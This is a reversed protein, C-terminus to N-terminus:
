LNTDDINELIFKAREYLEDFTIIEPSTTNKRFLEFSSFKYENIGKVTQFENLNGIVLYSKPNYNYIVEGTPDGDKNTIEIKSKLDYLASQVTKQIQTVGGILESSMTWCGSRYETGLLLTNHTKIEAFCLSSILGRTKLLADVRKGPKNFTFGTVVQELKKVDLSDCIICNLGYGFIWKNKEFFDQWLAEQGRYNKSESLFYEQDLLLSKFKNLQEKKFLLSKIDEKTLKQKLSESLLEQNEKLSDSTYKLLSFLKTFENYNGTNVHTYVNRMLKNARKSIEETLENFTEFKYEDLKYPNLLYGESVAQSLSYTFTPSDLDLHVLIEKEFKYYREFDKYTGQFTISRFNNSSVLLYCHEYQTKIKELGQSVSNINDMVILVNSTNISVNNNALLKRQSTVIIDSKFGDNGISVNFQLEKQFLDYFQHQLEVRDTVYIVKKVISNLLFYNITALFVLSKGTGTAMELLYRMKGSQQAHVISNYAEHQYPRLKSIFEENLYLVVGMDIIKQLFIEM